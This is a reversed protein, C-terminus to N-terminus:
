GSEQWRGDYLVVVVSLGDNGHGCFIYAIKRFNTHSYDKSGNHVKHAILKAERLFFDDKMEEEDACIPVIEEAM